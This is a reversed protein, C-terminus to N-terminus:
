SEEKRERRKKRAAEIAERRRNGSDYQQNQAEKAVSQVDRWGKGDFVRLKNEDRVYRIEEGPEPRAPLDAESEACKVNAGGGLELTVDPPNTSDTTIVQLPGLNPDTQIIAGPDMNGLDGLTIDWESGIGGDFVIADEPAALSPDARITDELSPMDAVTITNGDIPGNEASILKFEPPNCTPCYSEAQAGIAGDTHWYLLHGCTDCRASM